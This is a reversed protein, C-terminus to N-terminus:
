PTSFRATRANNSQGLRRTICARGAPLRRAARESAGTIEARRWSYAPHRAWRMGFSAAWSTRACRGTLATEAPATAPRNHAPWWTSYALWQQRPPARSRDGQVPAPRQSRSVTSACRCWRNTLRPSRTCTMSVTSPRSTPVKDAVFPTCPMAIMGLSPRPKVVLPLRVRQGNHMVVVGVVERHHLRKRGLATCAGHHDVRGRM